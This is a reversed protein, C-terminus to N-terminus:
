AASGISDRRPSNNWFSGHVFILSEYGNNSGSAPIAFGVDACTELRIFTVFM